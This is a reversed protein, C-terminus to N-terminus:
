TAVWVLAAGLAAIALGAIAGDLWVGAPLRRDRRALWVLGIYSCPYRSLWLLDSLSPIPVAEV